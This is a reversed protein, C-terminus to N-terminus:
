RKYYAILTLDDRIRDIAPPNKPPSKFNRILDQERIYDLMGDTGFLLVEGKRLSFDNVDAQGFLGKRMSFFNHLVSSQKTPLLPRMQNDSIINISGDGVNIYAGQGNPDIVVAFFTTSSDGTRGGRYDSEHDRLRRAIEDMSRAPHGFFGRADDKCLDMGIQVVASAIIESRDSISVGDAGFFIQTGDPLQLYGARDQHDHSTAPLNYALFDQGQVIEGAKGQLSLVEIKVPPKNAPQEMSMIGRRRGRWVEVQRPRIAKASLDLNHTRALVETLSKVKPLTHLGLMELAQINRVMGPRDTDRHNQELVGLVATGVRDRRASGLLKLLRDITPVTDFGLVRTLYVDALFTATDLKEAKFHSELRGIVERETPRRHSSDPRM